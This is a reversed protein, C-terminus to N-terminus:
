NNIKVLVGADIRNGKKDFRITGTVGEYYINSMAEQIKDRNLNAHKIAKIILNMGDYAYARVASAKKKHNKNFKNQFNSNNSKFWNGSNILTVSNYNNIIKNNFKDEGLLSLGGFITQTMKKNRLQQIFEFSSAHSGLIIIRSINNNNIKNLINKFNDNPNDYFLQLTNINGTTNIENLLSKLALKSEYNKDSVIAIKAINNKNYIEKIFMKAQQNNNPVCSFYWPVFAQSLSPDSAWASLFVIHTKTIVQEVLHANRTDHSGLIAWVKEKFVLDVVKKSGTGWPGEMSYTILEIPKGNIGGNRNTELVAAEAGLKAEIHSDNSILLGIKIVKDTGNYNQSPLVKPVIFTLLVFIIRLVNM